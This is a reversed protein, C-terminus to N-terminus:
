QVILRSLRQKGHLDVVVWYIGTPWTAVDLTEVWSSSSHVLSGSSDYAKVSGVSPKDSEEPLRLHVVGHAPNPFLRLDSTPLTAQSYGTSVTCPVFGNYQQQTSTGNGATFFDYTYVGNSTWSYVISDVQGNLTYTVTYGNNNSNPTCGTLTAGNLPTLSPRVPRASAQPIIQLTSDETVRGVMNGVMYPATMEGHYHYVGNTGFHGHNTDLPLMPVGDPEDAGYVAFGDLAFAVPSTTPVFNYLHLPAIHYHYDDARGCHGGWNDLQGDLYADVGTNTHPNFIAVGNIAVGIAGRLFHSANVPVPTTALVPNLPISWANNGIYCQPIPVQQQWSTIGAMMSHTTPIGQSEVRFWTTDWFTNVNPKFPTFASDMWLPDTVTSTLRLSNRHFSSFLVVSTLIAPVYLIRRKQRDHTFYAALLFAVILLLAISVNNKEWFGPSPAEPTSRHIQNLSAIRETKLRVFNQDNTSLDHFSASSVSGDTSEIYVIGDRESYFTGSVERREKGIVWIRPLTKEYNVDHAYTSCRILLLLLFLTKKM